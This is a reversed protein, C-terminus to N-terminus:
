LPGGAMERVGANALRTTGILAAVTDPIQEYALEFEYEWADGHLRQRRQNKPWIVPMRGLYAAWMSFTSGSAILVSATSMALLDAISSGFFARKVNPRGLLPRLEEDCADSFVFAPTATGMHSRCQDLAHLFWSMGQRIHRPAGPQIDDPHLFDGYRVHIGISRPAATGGVFRHKPRIAGLLLKRVLEHDDLMSEFYGDIGSFLVMGRHFAESDVLFDREPIRPQTALLALKRGGHIASQREDMLGLYCRKDRDWRIWQRHCFQPWTSAIRNLGFRESALVCRAWPFLCNALGVGRLRFLGCEIGGLHAYSYLSSM